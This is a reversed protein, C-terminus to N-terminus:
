FLAAIIRHRYKSVIRFTVLLVLLLPIFHFIIIPLLVFNENRETLMRSFSFFTYYLIVVLININTETYVAWATPNFDKRFFCESLHM